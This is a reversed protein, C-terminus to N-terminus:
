FDVRVWFVVSVTWSEMTVLVRTKWVAFCRGHSLSSVKMRPRLMMMMVGVSFRGGNGFSRSSKPGSLEGNDLIHSALSPMAPRGNLNALPM